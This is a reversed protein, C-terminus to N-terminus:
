FPIVSFNNLLWRCETIHCLATTSSRRGVLLLWPQWFVGLVANNLREIVFGFAASGISWQAYVEWDASVFCHGPWVTLVVTVGTAIQSTQM